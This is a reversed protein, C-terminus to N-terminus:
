IRFNMLLSLDSTFPMLRYDYLSNSCSIIQHFDYRHTASFLANNYNTDPCNFDNKELGDEDILEMVFDASFTPQQRVVSATQYEKKLLKIGHKEAGTGTHMIYIGMCVLFFAFSFRIFNKLGAM